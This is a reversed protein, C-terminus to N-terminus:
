SSRKSRKIDKKGYGCKNKSKLMLLRAEKKGARMLEGIQKAAANAEASTNDM